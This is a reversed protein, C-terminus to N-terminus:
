HSDSHVTGNYLLTDCRSHASSHDLARLISQLWQIPAARLGAGSPDNKFNMLVRPRRKADEM